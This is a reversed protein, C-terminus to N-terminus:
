AASRGQADRLLQPLAAAAQTDLEVRRDFNEWHGLVEVVGLLSIRSKV